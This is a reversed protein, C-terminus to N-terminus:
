SKYINLLYEEDSMSESLKLSKLVETIVNLISDTDAKNPNKIGAFKMISKNDLLYRIYVIEEETIGKDTSGDSSLSIFCTNEIDDKLESKINNAISSALHACTPDSLHNNGLDIGNKQLLECLKPCKLFALGEKAASYSTNM